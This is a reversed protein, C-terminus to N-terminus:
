CSQRYVPRIQSGVHQHQFQGALLVGAHQALDDVDGEDEALEDEDPEGVGEPVVPVM